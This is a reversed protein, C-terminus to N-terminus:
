NLMIEKLLANMKERNINKKDRIGYKKFIDDIKDM